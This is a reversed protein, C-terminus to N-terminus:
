RHWLHCSFGWFGVVKSLQAYCEWSYHVASPLSWYFLSTWCWLWFRFLNVMLRFCGDDLPCWAFAQWCVHQPSMWFMALPNGMWQWQMKVAIKILGLQSPHKRPLYKGAGQLPIHCLTPIINRGHMPWVLLVYWVRLVRKWILPELVALRADEPISKDTSSMQM